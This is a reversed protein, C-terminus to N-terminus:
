IISRKEFIERQIDGMLVRRGTKVTGFLGISLCKRRKVDKKIGYKGRLYVRRRAKLRGGRGKEGAYNRDKGGIRATEERKKQGM